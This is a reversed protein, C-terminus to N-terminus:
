NEQVVGLAYIVGNALEALETPDELFLSRGESDTVGIRSRNGRQGLEQRFKNAVVHFELGGGLEELKGFDGAQLRGQGASRWLAPQVAVPADAARGYRRNAFRGWPVTL